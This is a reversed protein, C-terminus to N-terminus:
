WSFKMGVRGYMGRSFLDSMGVEEGFGIWEVQYGISAFPVLRTGSVKFPYAFVLQANGGAGVATDESGDYWGDSTDLQAMGLLGYGEAQVRTRLGGLRPLVYGIGMGAVGTFIKMEEDRSRSLNGTWVSGAELVQTGDQEEYRIGMFFYSTVKKGLSFGPFFEVRIDYIEREYDKESSPGGTRGISSSFDGTSYGFSFGWDFGKLEKGLRLRYGILEGEVEVTTSLDGRVMDEYEAECDSWSTELSVRWDPKEEQAGVGIASLLILCSGLIVSVNAIKM